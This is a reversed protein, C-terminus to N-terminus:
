VWGERERLTTVHATHHDGHWAYLALLDDLTLDGMEPHVGIRSWDELRVAKLVTLWRHHVAELLSLSTELPTERYDEGHAWSDQDFTCVTPRDERLVTKMRVYGSLHSDPLHHVLQRVTWGGPRYPTDLQRESLDVVAKRFRVPATEISTIAVARDGASLNGPPRFQGIPYRPDTM